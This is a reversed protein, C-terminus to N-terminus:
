QMNKIAEEFLCQFKEEEQLDALSKDKFIVNELIQNYTTIVLVMNVVVYEKKPAITAVKEKFM